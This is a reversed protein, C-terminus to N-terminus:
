RGAGDLVREELARFQESEAPGTAIDGYWAREFLETAGAFDPAVPPLARGVDVRYEGATRGAIDPVIGRQALDGVLARYRCRLAARWEGAAEREAAEARWEAPTRRREVAVEPRRAPDVQVTRAFRLVFWVVVGVLAFFLLWSIANANGGVLSEVVQGIRDALWQQVREFLSPAPQRFEPRALIDDALRRVTDPDHPAGGPEQAAAVAVVGAVGAALPLSALLARRAASRWVTL